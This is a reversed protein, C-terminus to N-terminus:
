SGPLEHGSFLTPTAPPPPCITVGSLQSLEAHKNNYSDYTHLSQLGHEKATAIHLADDPALRLSQLMAGRVLEATASMIGRHPEVLTIPSGVTWFANIKEQTTSDLAKGDKEAKAFAVEAITFMSTWIEVEQKEAKEMLELIAPLREQHGEIISLFICSDWYYRPVNANKKAM